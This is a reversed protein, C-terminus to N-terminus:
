NCPPNAAFLAQYESLTTTFGINHRRKEVNDPDEINSWDVVQKGDVCVVQTGFRQPRGEAVALRDFMLGYSEGDVEGIAVLSELVPLFRRWLTADSHQTILFATQAVGEGYRSRYFWGEPPLTELLTQQNAKDIEGIVKWMAARAQRREAPSLTSLDVTNLAARSQQDLRYMRLFRENLDIPPGSADQRAQETQIAEVVPAILRAAQPSLAPEQFALSAAIALSSFLM